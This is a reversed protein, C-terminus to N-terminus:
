SFHCDLQIKMKIRCIHQAYENFIYVCSLSLSLSVFISFFKELDVNHAYYRFITYNAASVVTHSNRPLAAAFTQVLGCIICLITFGIVRSTINSTSTVCLSFTLQMPLSRMELDLEANTVVHMMRLDTRTGKLTILLLRCVGATM